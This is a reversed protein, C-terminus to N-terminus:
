STILSEPPDHGAMAVQFVAVDARSGDGHGHHRLTRCKVRKEHRRMGSPSSGASTGPFDGHGRGLAVRRSFNRGSDPHHCVNHYLYYHVPYLLIVRHVGITVFVNHLHASM